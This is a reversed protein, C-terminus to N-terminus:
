NKCNEKMFRELLNKETLTVFLMHGRCPIKLNKLRLFRKLNIQFMAKQLFLKYKLIRVIDGIKFKLDKDNNEKSFNIYTSSQVDILKKKTTCHYTKDYKNVIGDLKDIYVNKSISTMYKYIKNKFTRIFRETVISKGEKYTSYM